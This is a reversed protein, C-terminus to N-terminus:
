RVDDRSTLVERRKSGGLPGQWVTTMGADVALPLWTFLAAWVEAPDLECTQATSAVATHLNVGATGCAQLFAHQWSALVHACVRYRSRAVAYHTDAPLPVAPRDGRDAAALAEALAFDLRLLQLSEPTRVALDPTTMVLVPDIPHHAPDTEVGPAHRAELRARELRALAAPLADPSGAPGVPQPRTQDLFDAFGAGLDLLSYSDPPRAWVYAQAFLDFVQDGVLARLAPFEARLCGLLRALYGRAYIDLRDESSLCCSGKVVASAELAYRASSIRLGERVGGAATCTALMWGQLVPLDPEAM